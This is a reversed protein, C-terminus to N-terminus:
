FTKKIPKVRFGTIKKLTNELKAAAVPAEAESSLVSHVALVYANAVADYKSPVMSSPRLVVEAGNAPRGQRSNPFAKLLIPLEYLQQAKPSGSNAATAQADKQLLFRILQLAESRHRSSLSSALGSGGLTAVRSDESGPLSTIGESRPVAGSSLHLLIYDSTWSRLFAASGSNAFANIADWERYSLVDPPSIHGVWKRAREWSHIAAPNNVSITRDTEIIQGGGESKQWELANCLLGEAPAGPWVFGWFDKRGSAREGQQIHLAITELEDWTRPPHAYGYKHLLDARYYLVGVVARYPVAVLRGNIKFDEVVEPDNSLASTQFYPSLDVLQDAFMAPWIADISYIDPGSEGMRFLDHILAVREANTEPAPLHNVRIGTQRTFEELVADSQLRRERQDHSWDPDLFTLTVSDQRHSRCATIALAILLLGGAFLTSRGTYHSRGPAKTQGPSKSRRLTMERIRRILHHGMDISGISKYAVIDRLGVANQDDFTQFKVVAAHSGKM